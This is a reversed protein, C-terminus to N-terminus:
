MGILNLLIILIKFIVKHDGMCVDKGIIGYEIDDSNQILHLATRTMLIRDCWAPCRTSLTIQNYEILLSKLSTLRADDNDILVNM